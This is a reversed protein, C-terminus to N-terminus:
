LVVRFRDRSPRPKARVPSKPYLLDAIFSDITRNRQTSPIRAAAPNAWSTIGRYGSGGAADGRSFYGSFSYKEFTQFVSTTVFTVLGVRVKNLGEGPDPLPLPTTIQGPPPKIANDMFLSPTSTALHSAAFPMVANTNFYRSACVPSSAVASNVVRM